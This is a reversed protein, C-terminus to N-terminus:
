EDEGRMRAIEKELEDWTLLHEGSAVIRKRIEILKKGLPTKAKYTASYDENITHTKGNNRTKVASSSSKRPM